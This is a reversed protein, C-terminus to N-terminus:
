WCRLSPQTSVCHDAKSHIRGAFSTLLNTTTLVYRAFLGFSSVIDFAHYYRLTRAPTVFQLSPQATSPARKSLTYPNVGKPPEFGGREAFVFYRRTACIKNASLSCLVKTSHTPILVASATCLVFSVFHLSPKDSLRTGHRKSNQSTVFCFLRAVMLVFGGREALSRLSHTSLPACGNQCFPLPALVPAPNSRM